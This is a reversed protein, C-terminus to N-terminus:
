SGTEIPHLTALAQAKEHTRNTLHLSAPKEALLNSLVGSVAGGAGLVLVQQGKLSWNLNQTIDRVIGGGDTNDGQLKGDTTRSITNVAEAAQAAHSLSDVFQWADRKCPLTINFGHGTTLFAEATSVFEGTPVLVKDYQIDVGAQEAFLAHIEPSRSHAIPNGFVALQYQTM